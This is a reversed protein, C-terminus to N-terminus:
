KILSFRKFFGTYKSIAKLTKSAEELATDDWKWSTRIVIIKAVPHLITCITTITGIATMAELGYPIKTLLVMLENDM